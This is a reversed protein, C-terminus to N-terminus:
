EDPNPPGISITNLLLHGAQEEIWLELKSPAGVGQVMFTVHVLRPSGEKTPAIRWRDFAWTAKTSALVGRLIDMNPAFGKLARTRPTALPVVAVSGSDQLVRIFEHAFRVEPPLPASQAAAARPGISM